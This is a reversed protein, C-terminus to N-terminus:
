SSTDEGIECVEIPVLGKPAPVVGICPYLGALPKPTRSCAQRRTPAKIRCSTGAAPNDAAVAQEAARGKETISGM